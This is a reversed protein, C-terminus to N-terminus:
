HGCVGPHCFHSLRLFERRLKSVTATKASARSANVAIETKATNAKAVQRMPRLNGADHLGAPLLSFIIDSGIAFM